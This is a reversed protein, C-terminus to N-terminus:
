RALPSPAPKTGKPSYWPPACRNRVPADITTEAKKIRKWAAGRNITTPFTHGTETAITRLAAIQEDTAPSERWAKRGPHGNRQRARNARHALKRRRRRRQRQLVSWGAAIEDDTTPTTAAECQRWGIEELEAETQKKKPPANGNGNKKTVEKTAKTQKKKPAAKTTTTAKTKIQKTQKSM